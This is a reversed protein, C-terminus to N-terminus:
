YNEYIVVFAPILKEQARTWTAETANDLESLVNEFNQCLNEFKQDSSNNKIETYNLKLKDLNNTVEELTKTQSIEETALLLNFLEDDNNNIKTDAYFITAYSRTEDLKEGLTTLNAKKASIESEQILEFTKSINEVWTLSSSL